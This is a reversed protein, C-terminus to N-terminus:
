RYPTGTPNIEIEAKPFYKELMVGVAAKMGIRDINPGITCKVSQIGAQRGSLKFPLFLKLGTASPMPILKATSTVPKSVLRWEREMEFSGHKFIPAILALYTFVEEAYEDAHAELLESPIPVATNRYKKRFIKENCHDLVRHILHQAERYPADIYFADSSYICPGFFYGQEECLALLDSGKFGLAVGGSRPCYARWQELSDPETTLSVTYIPPLLTTDSQVSTSREQLAALETRAGQFKASWGTRANFGELVADFYGYIERQEASDNLDYIRGGWLTQSKCIGILGTPNTYHFYHVDPKVVRRMYEADFGLESLSPKSAPV